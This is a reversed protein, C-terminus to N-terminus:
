PKGGLRALEKKQDSQLSLVPKRKWGIKRKKVKKKAM